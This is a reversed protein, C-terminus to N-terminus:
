PAADVKSKLDENASKLSKVLLPPNTFSSIRSSLNWEGEQKEPPVHSGNWENGSFSVESM